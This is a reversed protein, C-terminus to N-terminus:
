ILSCFKQNFKLEVDPVFEYNEDEGHVCFCLYLDNLNEGRKMGREGLEEQTRQLNQVRSNAPRIVQVWCANQVIKLGLPM